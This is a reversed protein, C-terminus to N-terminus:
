IDKLKLHSKQIPEGFHKLVGSPGAAPNGTDPHKQAGGMLREEEVEEVKGILRPSANVVEASKVALAPDVRGHGDLKRQKMEVCGERDEGDAVQDYQLDINPFGRKLTNSKGKGLGKGKSQYAEEIADANTDLLHTIEDPQADVGALEELVVKVRNPKDMHAQLYAELQEEGMAKNRTGVLLRAIMAADQKLQKEVSSVGSEKSVDERPEVELSTKTSAEELEMQDGDVQEKQGEEVGRTGDAYTMDHGGEQGVREEVVPGAVFELNLLEILASREVDSMRWVEELSEGTAVALREYLEEEPNREM